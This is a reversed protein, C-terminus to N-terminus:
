GSLAPGFGARRLIAQGASSLVFRVFEEALDANRSAKIAAIPYTAVVQASAPLEIRRVAAGADLADTVYVFGADAEGSTVATLVGAVDPAESAVDALVKTSYEAGYAADLKGLVTRTYAGIPVSAAGIVLKLGPRALDAPSTIGAPNSDPSSPWNRM